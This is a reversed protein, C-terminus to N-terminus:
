GVTPPVTAHVAIESSHHSSAGAGDLDGVRDLQRFHNGREIQSNQKMRVPLQLTTRARLRSSSIGM